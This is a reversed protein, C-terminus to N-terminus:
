PFNVFTSLLDGPQVFFTSSHQCFTRRGCAFNISLRRAVRFTSSLQCFTEWSFPFNVFPRRAVRFTSPLDGQQVFLKRFNVSPRRAASCTSLPRGPRMSLQRFMRSAAHFTPPLENFTERSFPLNVFTSSSVGLQVSIPLDFSQVSLERFTM